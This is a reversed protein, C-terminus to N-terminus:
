LDPDLIEKIVWLSGFNHIKNFVAKQKLIQNLLRLNKDLKTTLQFHTGEGQTAQKFM